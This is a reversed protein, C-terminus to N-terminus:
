DNIVMPGYVKNSINGARDKLIMSYRVTDNNPSLLILPNNFNVMVDGELTKDQGEPTLSLVCWMAQTEVQVWEGDVMEDYDVKIDFDGQCPDVGDPVSVLRSGIDGDGDRFSCKMTLSDGALTIYEVFELSPTTPYNKDKDCAIFVMSALVLALIIKVGNLM